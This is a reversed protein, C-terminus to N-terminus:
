SLKRMPTSLIALAAFARTMWKTGLFGSSTSSCVACISCASFSLGPMTINVGTSSLFITPGTCCSLSALMGITSNGIRQGALEDGKDAGVIDLEAVFFREIQEPM